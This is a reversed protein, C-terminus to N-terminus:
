RVLGIQTSGSQIASAISACNSGAQAGGSVTISHAILM